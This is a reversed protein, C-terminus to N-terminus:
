KGIKKIKPPGAKAKDLIKQKLEGDIKAELGELWILLSAVKKIANGKIDYNGTQIVSHLMRLNAIDSAELKKLEKIEV